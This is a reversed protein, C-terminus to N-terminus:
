PVQRRRLLVGMHNKLKQENTITVSDGAKHTSSASRRVYTASTAASEPTTIAIVRAAIKTTSKTTSKSKTNSKNNKTNRKTNSKTTTKTTCPAPVVPPTASARRSSRGSPARRPPLDTRNGGRQHKTYKRKTKANLAAPQPSRALAGAGGRKM